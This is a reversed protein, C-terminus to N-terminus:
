IVPIGRLLNGERETVRVAVLSKVNYRGTGIRIKLYNNSTGVVGYDDHEEEVIIDLIKGIQSDMYGEKKKINLLRVRDCRKRMVSHVIHNPMQHAYSGIRRSYPFIHIYSFPLEDLLTITNQFARDNEGPFGVIVDTGLSLEPNNKLFDYIKQRYMSVTYPRKMSSLIADDGSQLPIHVHNCIRKDRFLELLRADISQVGISSLRIRSINTRILLKYILDSLSLKPILDRGYSGLEIGTLVVENFGEEELIRVQRLIDEDSLSRSRGRAFPVICFSCRSNCGDQIKLSPRARKSYHSNVRVPKKEIKNVINVKNNNDVISIEKSINRVEEPRLQSYCGTVIVHKATRLARRILQRSQYDSKATVSCTNVICYDPYELLSAVSYGRDLLSGEILDSESQNVKCGLTLICFKKM